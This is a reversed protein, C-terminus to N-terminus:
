LLQIERRSDRISCVTAAQLPSIAKLMADQLAAHNDEGREVAWRTTEKGEVSEERL